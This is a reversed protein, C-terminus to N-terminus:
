GEQPTTTAGPVLHELLGAGTKGDAGDLRDACGACGAAACCDLHPDLEQDADPHRPHDDVQHCLPCERIPRETGSADVGIMQDSPM